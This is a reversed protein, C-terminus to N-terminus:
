TSHLAARACFFPPIPVLQLMCFFLRFHLERPLYAAAASNLTSRKGDHPIYNTGRNIIVVGRGHNGYKRVVTVVISDKREFSAYGRANLNIVIGAM